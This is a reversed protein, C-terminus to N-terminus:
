TNEQKPLAKMWNLQPIALSPMFSALGGASSGNAHDYVWQKLTNLGEVTNTKISYIQNIRNHMGRYYSDYGSIWRSPGGDSMGGYDAVSPSGM